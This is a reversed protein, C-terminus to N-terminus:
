ASSSPRSVTPVWGLFILMQVAGTDRSAPAGGPTPQVGGTMDDPPDRSRRKAGDPRKGPIHHATSSEFWHSGRHLRPARVSQALRGRRLRCRPPAPADSLGILSVSRRRKTARRRSPLERRRADRHGLGRPRRDLAICDVIHRRPAAHHRDSADHRRCAPLWRDALGPRRRRHVRRATTMRCARESLDGLIAAPRVVSPPTRSWSRRRSTSVM